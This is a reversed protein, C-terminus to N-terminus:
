LDAREKRRQILVFVGLCCVMGCFDLFVDEWKGGRTPTLSQQYEDFISIPLPWALGVAFCRGLSAGNRRVLSATAVAATGYGIFHLCKRTWYMWLAATRWEEDPLKFIMMYFRQLWPTQGQPGSAFAIFLGFGTALAFAFVWWFGQKGRLNWVVVGALALVGGLTVIWTRGPVLDVGPSGAAWLLLFASGYACVFLAHNRFPLHERFGAVVLGLILILVLPAQIALGMSGWKVAQLVALAAFVGAAWWRVNEKNV